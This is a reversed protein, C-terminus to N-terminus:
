EFVEMANLSIKLNPELIQKSVCDIFHNAARFQM